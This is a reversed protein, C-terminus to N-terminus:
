GNAGEDHNLTKYVLRSQVVIKKRPQGLQDKKAAHIRTAHGKNAATSAANKKAAHCLQIKEVLPWDARDKLFPAIGHIHFPRWLRSILRHKWARHQSAGLQNRHLKWWSTDSHLLRWLGKLPLSACIMGCRRSFRSTIDRGDTFPRLNWYAQQRNDIWETIVYM